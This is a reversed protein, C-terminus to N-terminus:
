AALAQEGSDILAPPRGRGIGANREPGHLDRGVQGFRECAGPIHRFLSGSRAFRLPPRAEAAEQASRPQALRDGRQLHIVICLKEAIVWLWLHRRGENVWGSASRYLSRSRRIPM